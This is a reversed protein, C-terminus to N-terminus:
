LGKLHDAVERARLIAQTAQMASFQPDAKYDADRRHRKLALGKEGAAQVEPVSSGCLARWLADHSSGMGASPPTYSLSRTAAREALHFAFYYARSVATRFRAEDGGKALSEALTLFEAWDFM